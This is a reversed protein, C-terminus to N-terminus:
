DSGASLAPGATFEPPEAPLRRRLWAWRGVGDLARRWRHWALRVSEAEARWRDAEARARRTQTEAVDARRELEGVRSELDGVRERATRLEDRLREVEPELLDALVSRRELSVLREVLHGPVGGAGGHPSVPMDLAELSSDLAREGPMDLTDEASDLAEPSPPQLAETRELLRTAMEKSVWLESQGPGTVRYEYDHGEVGHRTVWRRASRRPSDGSVLARVPSWELREM